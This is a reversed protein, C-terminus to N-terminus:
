EGRDATRKKRVRSTPMATIPDEPWHHKPYRGRMEKKVQHYSGAWFSALDQTAQVPRGAPSLLHVLVPQRGAAVRPTETCGFMEQVRVALIPIEGSYDMRIRAGSHVELHTPAWEDLQRRKQWSLLGGLAAGLDVTKLGSIRTIGSLHPKLWRELSDTLAPDSVDPWDAAAGLARGLFLVREQWRRLGPTWPLCRIGALRIGEILAAAVRMPDAQQLPESRLVLAALCLSREMKVAATRKDWAITERVELAPGFDELIVETECAAALFVRAERREGDLEAAVIYDAAALPEPSPL